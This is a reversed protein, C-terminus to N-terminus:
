HEMVDRISLVGVARDNEVIPLHRINNQLMIQRSDCAPTKPSVSVVNRTMIDEVKQRFSTPSANAVWKLIDRESLIGVMKEQVDTVVLCGVRHNQMLQAAEVVRQHLYITVVQPLPKVACGNDSNAQTM